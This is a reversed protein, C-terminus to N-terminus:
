ASRMFIYVVKYPEMNNHAVNKGADATYRFRASGLTRDMFVPGDGDYGSGKPIQTSSITGNWTDKPAWVLCNASIYHNHAALEEVTM